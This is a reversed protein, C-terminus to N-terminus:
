GHLLTALGSGTGFGMIGSGDSHGWSCHSRHGDRCRACGRHSSCGRPGCCAGRFWCLHCRFSMSCHHGPSFAVEVSVQFCRGIRTSLHPFPLHIRCKSMNSPFATHLKFTNSLLINLLTQTTWLLLKPSRFLHFHFNPLRSAPSPIGVATGM